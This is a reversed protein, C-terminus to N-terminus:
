MSWYSESSPSCFGPTNSAEIFKKGSILNTREVMRVVHNNYRDESCWGYPGPGAFVNGMIRDNFRRCTRSAHGATKYAKAYLSHPQGGPTPGVQVTSPIHYIVFM